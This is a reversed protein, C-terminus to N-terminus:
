FRLPVSTPAVIELRESNRTAVIGVTLAGGILVAAGAWVYWRKWLPARAKALKVHTVAETKAETSLGLAERVAAAATPRVKPTGVDSASLLRAEFLVGRRAVTLISEVGREGAIRQLIRQTNADDADLRGEHWPAALAAVNDPDRQLAIKIEPSKSLDVLSVERVHGLASVSVIHLGARVRVPSSRSVSRGDIRIEASAPTVAIQLAILDADDVGRVATDFASTLAPGYFGRKPAREPDIAFALRFRRQVEAQDQPGGRALLALGAQFQLEWLLGADGELDLLLSGEVSHLGALM